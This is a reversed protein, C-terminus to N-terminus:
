KFIFFVLKCAYKEEAYEHELDSDNNIRAVLKGKVDEM